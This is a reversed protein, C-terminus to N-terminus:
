NSIDAFGFNILVINDKYKADSLTGWAAYQWGPELLIGFQGIRFLAGLYTGSHWGIEPNNNSAPEYKNDPYMGITMGGAFRLYPEVIGKTLGSPVLFRLGPGVNMQGSSNDLGKHYLIQYEFNFGVGLWALVTYEAFVQVSGSLDYEEDGMDSKGYKGMPIIGGKLGLYFEHGASLSEAEPIDTQEELAPQEAPAPDPTAGAEAGEDAFLPSTLLLLGIILLLPTVKM